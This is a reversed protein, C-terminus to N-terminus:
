SSAEEISFRDDSAGYGFFVKKMSSVHLMFATSMSMLTKASLSIKNVSGRRLTRNMRIGSSEEQLRTLALDTYCM